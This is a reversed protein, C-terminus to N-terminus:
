GFCRRQPLFPVGVSRLTGSSPQVERQEELKPPELRKKLQYLMRLSTGRDEQAINALIDESGPLKARRLVPALRPLNRGKVLGLESKAFQRENQFSEKLQDTDLVNPLLKSILEAWLYGSAFDREISTVERSLGVDNNLWSFIFASM